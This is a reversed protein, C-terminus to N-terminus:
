RQNLLIKRFSLNRFVDQATERLKGVFSQVRELFGPRVIKAPEAHVPIIRANKKPMQVRLMGNKFSAKIKNQDVDSPITYSHYFYGQSETRRGSQKQRVEVRLMDADIRVEINKKRFGPLAIQWDYYQSSESLNGAGVAVRKFISKGSLNFDFDWLDTFFRRKM